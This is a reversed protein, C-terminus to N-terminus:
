TNVNRDEQIVINVNRDEQIVINVNSDGTNSHTLMATGQIVIHQCQQGGTNSHTLM